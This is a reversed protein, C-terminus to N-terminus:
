TADQEPVGRCEFRCGELQGVVATVEQAVTAKHATRAYELSMGKRAQVWIEGSSSTDALIVGFHRLIAQKADESSV